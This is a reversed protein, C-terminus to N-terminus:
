NWLQQPHPHAHTKNKVSSGWIEVRRVGVGEGEGVRLIKIFLSRRKALEHVKIKL